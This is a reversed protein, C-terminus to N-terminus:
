RFYVNRKVRKIIFVVNNYNNNYLKISKKLLILM